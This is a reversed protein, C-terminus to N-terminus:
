LPKAGYARSIGAHSLSTQAHRESQSIKEDSSIAHYSPSGCLRGKQDTTGMTAFSSDQWARINFFEAASGAPISGADKPEFGLLIDEVGHIWRM